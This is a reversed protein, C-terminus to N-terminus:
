NLIIEVLLVVDLVDLTADYNIDGIIANEQTLYEINIIHGIDEVVDLVDLSGDGNVDGTLPNGTVIFVRGALSPDVVYPNKNGQFSSIVNTREIEVEDPMDIYHWDLLDEDQLQWYYDAAVDSYITYFYMVARATNGKQEERPEFREDDQNPPNFKEAYEDIYQSPITEIYYDNRYWKDTDQDDIESFPDNGRSSNVNSKTPFLHHMDSKMPESGAGLSQPWTHECNIGQDYANTSPDQSLDLTITYGSYVGTLQNGPKLDIESYMVDRANNYGLTSNAQYSSNIYNFLSSGYLGEGIVEQSFVLQSLLLLYILRIKSSLLHLARQCQYIDTLEM